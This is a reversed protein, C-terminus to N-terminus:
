QSPRGNAWQELQDAQRSRLMTLFRQALDYGMQLADLRCLQELQTTESPSLEAPARFLLWALIRSNPLRSESSASNLDPAIPRSQFTARYPAYTTAAPVERHRRVWRAVLSRPGQFGLARIEQWLQSANLCGAQWRQHIHPLYPDIKKPRPPRNGSEPPPGGRRLYDRVTGYAVGLRHAIQKRPLGLALLTQMQEFLAVRQLQREHRAQAGYRMHDAPRLPRIEAMELRQPIPLLLRQQRLAARQRTALRELVDRLNNVLHWRDAVQQCQPAAADAARAYDLFRDRAMVQVSPHQRLWNALTKAERDALLDIPRRRELDVILTGYVQGRQLAWDDVGIVAPAPRGVLPAKRILRLLTAGSCPMHLGQSLRSGAQGGLAFAITELVAALRVSRRSYRALFGPLPEAFTAKTCTPSLCRFRKVRLRFSTPRDGVPLDTPRRVYYSHISRSVKGCGPCTAAVQPTRAQIELINDQVGISEIELETLALLAETSAM